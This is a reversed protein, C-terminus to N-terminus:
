RNKILKIVTTTDKWEGDWYVAARTCTKVEALIGARNRRLSHSGSPKVKEM